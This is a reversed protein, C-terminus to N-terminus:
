SGIIWFNNSQRLSWAGPKNWARSSVYFIKIILKVTIAVLVLYIFQTIDCWFMRIHAMLVIKCM